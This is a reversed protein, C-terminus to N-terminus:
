ILLQHHCSSEQLWEQLGAYYDLWGMKVNKEIVTKKFSMFRLTLINSEVLTLEYVNKKKLDNKLHKM